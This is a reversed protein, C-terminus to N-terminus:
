DTEIPHHRLAKLRRRGKRPCIDDEDCGIFLLNGDFDALASEFNFAEPLARGDDAPIKLVRDIVAPDTGEPAPM